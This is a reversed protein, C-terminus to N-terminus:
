GNPPKYEVAVIQDTPLIEVWQDFIAFPTGPKLPTGPSSSNRPDRFGGQLPNFGTEFVKESALLTNTRSSTDTGEIDTKIENILRNLDNEIVDFGESGEVSNRKLWNIAAEEKGPRIPIVAKVWASNLFANRHTDGDLQLLWGISSGLRAPESDETIPYNERDKEGVGGWSVVDNQTLVKAGDLTSSGRNSINGSNPAPSVPPPPSAGFRERGSLARLLNSSGPRIIRGFTEAQEETAVTGATRLNSSGRRSLLEDEGRRRPMWWDPAVFYLMADVDFISRILESTVHPSQDTLAGTLEQILRRFIVIREEDRLDSSPRPKIGRALKVRERVLEVYQRHAERHKEETFQAMKSKYAAEQTQKLTDTPEWFLSVVFQVTTAGGFNVENVIVQFEGTEPNTINNYSAVFHPINEGKREISKLQVRTLIYGTKPPRARYDSYNRIQVGDDDVTHIIGSDDVEFKRRGIGWEVELIRNEPVPRNSPRDNYLHDTEFGNSNLPDLEFVLSMEEVQPELEPPAEPQSIDSSIDQPKAIHVLESIGLNRGPNDLYVQWCLQTGIHQVQVAVQRMKRKLEYNALKDTNNQIIHRRSSTDQLEVTTRFTTKFSKRIESSLKSSQQRMIKHSTEEASAHAVSSNYQTSVSSGFVGFNVEGEASVGFSENRQNENKIADSIEEQTTTSSESKTTVDISSEIERETVTRRSHIEFLEITGGPSLWIHEVSPGLISDLEFFYQRYRFLMGIPSLVAATTDPDFNALPDIFDAPNQPRATGDLLLSRLVHPSKDKLYSLMGAIASERLIAAETQPQGINGPPVGIASSSPSPQEGGTRIFNSRATSTLNTSVNASSKRSERHPQLNATIVKEDVNIKRIEEIINTRNHSTGPNRNMIDTMESQVSRAVSSDLWPPLRTPIVKDPRLVKGDPSFAGKIAVTNRVSSISRQIWESRENNVRITSLRGKWGILPQYIGFTESAYPAVSRYKELDVM